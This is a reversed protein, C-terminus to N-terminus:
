KLISESSHERMSSRSALSSKNTWQNSFLHPILPIFKVKIFDIGVPLDDDLDQHHATGNDIVLLCKLPLQKEKLYKKVQPGFTEYMWEVFFQRTCWSKTNSQWMAPLPSLPGSGERPTGRPSAAKPHLNKLTLSSKNTWPNSFLNSMLPLFTVKIFDIGVPLDDDLDQHNATGNDMVLLCRLPLQKEKLYKKVQPGFTEYMWEVFITQYM